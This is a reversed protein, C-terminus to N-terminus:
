AGQQAMNCDAGSCDDRRPPTLFRLDQFLAFSSTHMMCLLALRLSLCDGQSSNDAQLLKCEEFCFGFDCKCVGVVSCGQLLSVNARKCSRKASIVTAFISRALGIPHRLLIDKALPLQQLGCVSPPTCLSALLAAAGVFLRKSASYINVPVTARRRRCHVDRPACLRSQTACGQHPASTLNELLYMAERASTSTGGRQGFEPVLRVLRVVIPMLETTLALVKKAIPALYRM